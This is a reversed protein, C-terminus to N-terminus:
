ESPRQKPFSLGNRNMQVVRAHGDAFLLNFNLGHGSKILLTGEDDEISKIPDRLYPLNAPDPIASLKFTDTKTVYRAYELPHVYSIVGSGEIGAYSGERLSRPTAPCHWFFASSLYPKLAAVFHKQGQTAISTTLFPPASDSNDEAYLRTAFGLQKLSSVCSFRRAQDKTQNGFPFIFAVLILVIVATTFM